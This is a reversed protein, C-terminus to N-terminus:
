IKLTLIIKTAYCQRPTHKTKESYKKLVLEKLIIKDIPLKQLRSDMLSDVRMGNIRITCNNTIQVPIYFYDKDSYIPVIGYKLLKIANGKSVKTEIFYGYKDMKIASIIKVTLYLEDKEDIFCNLSIRWKM